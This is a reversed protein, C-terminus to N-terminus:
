RTGPPKRQSAGGPTRGSAAEEIIKARPDPKKAELAGGPNNPAAPTATGGPNVLSKKAEAQDGPRGNLPGGNALSPSGCLVHSIAGCGPGFCVQGSSILASAGAGRRTVFELAASRTPSQRACFAAAAKEGACDVGPQQCGDLYHNQGDEGPITPNVYLVNGNPQPQVSMPPAAPAISARILADIKGLEPGIPADGCAGTEKSWRWADPSACSRGELCSNSCVSHVAVVKGGVYSPGGSDGGAGSGNGLSVWLREHQAMSYIGTARRYKMDMRSREQLTLGEVQWAQAFASTGSGVFTVESRLLERYTAQRRLPAVFGHTRNSVQMPRALKLIAVDNPRFSHIEVVDRQNDRRGISRQSLWGSNVKVQDPRLNQYPPGGSVEICHAATLVWDNRLLSGSCYGDGLVRVLGMKEIEANPIEDGGVVASPQTGLCVGDAPRPSGDRCKGPTAAVNPTVPAFREVVLDRPGTEDVIFEYYNGPQQLDVIVREIAARAGANPLKLTLVKTASAGWPKGVIGCVGPELSVPDKSLAPRAPDGAVYAIYVATQPGESGYHATPLRTGDANGRCIYHDKGRLDGAATPSGAIPTAGPQLPAGSAAAAQSRAPAALTTSRTAPSLVQTAPTSASRGGVIIIGRSDAPSRAGASSASEAPLNPRANPQAPATSSRPAVEGSITPPTRVSAAPATSATAAARGGVALQNYRPLPERQRCSIGLADVMHGYTGHIGAVAMARPCQQAEPRYVPEFQARERDYTISEYVFHNFQDIPPSGGREMTSCWMELRNVLLRDKGRAAIKLQRVYPESEPCLFRVPEGGGGGAVPLHTLAGPSGDAPWERCIAAVQDVDHGVRLDLGALYSFRPCEGQIAHPGRGGIAPANWSKEVAHVTDLPSLISVAAASVLVAFKM